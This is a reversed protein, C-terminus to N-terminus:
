TKPPSTGGGLVVGIAGAGAGIILGLWLSPWDIDGKGSGAVEGPPLPPPPGVLHMRGGVVAVLDEDSLLRADLTTM